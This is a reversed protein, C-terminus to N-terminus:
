RHALLPPNSGMQGPQANRWRLLRSPLVTFIQVLVHVFPQGAVIAPWGKTSAPPTASLLAFGRGAHSAACPLPMDTVQAPLVCWAACRGGRKPASCPRATPLMDVAGAQPQERM